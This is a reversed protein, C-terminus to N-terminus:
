LPFKVTIKAKNVRDTQLGVRQTIKEVFHPFIGGFVTKPEETVATALPSVETPPACQPDCGLMCIKGDYPCIQNM